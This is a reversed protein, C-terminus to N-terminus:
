MNSGGFRKSVTNDTNCITSHVEGPGCQQRPGGKDRSGGYAVPLLLLLLLLLGAVRLREHAALAAAAVVVLLREDLVLLVLAVHLGLEGAREARVAALLLDVEDFVDAADVAGLQRGESGTVGPSGRHGGTVWRLTVHQRRAPFHKHRASASASPVLGPPCILKGNSSSQRRRILM